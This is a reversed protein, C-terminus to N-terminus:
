NVLVGLLVFMRSCFKVKSGIVGKTLLKIGDVITQLAGMFGVNYPGTRIQVGGLL